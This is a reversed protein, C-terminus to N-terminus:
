YLKAETNTGIPTQYEDSVPDDLLEEKPKIRKV